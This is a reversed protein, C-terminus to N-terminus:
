IKGAKNGEDWRKDDRKGIRVFIEIGSVTRILKNIPTRGFLFLGKDDRELIHISGFGFITSPQYNITSPQHYFFDSNM